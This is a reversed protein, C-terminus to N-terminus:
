DTVVIPLKMGAEYHGALYCAAELQAEGPSPFRVTQEVTAGPVLDDASIAAVAAQDMEGMNMAGPEMPPMLMLEHPVSGANTVVFRYDRGAQFETQSMEIAFETLTVTVEIPESADTRPEGDDGGTAAPGGCAVLLMSAATAAGFGRWNGFVSQVM